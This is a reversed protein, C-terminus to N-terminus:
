RSFVKMISTVAAACRKGIDDASLTLSTLTPHGKVAGCVIDVARGTLSNDDFSLVRLPNAQVVSSLFRLIDLVKIAEAVQDVAAGIQVSEFHLATLTSKAQM